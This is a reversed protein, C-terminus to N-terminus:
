AKGHTAIAEDIRAFETEDGPLIERMTAKHQAINAAAQDRYYGAPAPLNRRKLIARYSEDGIVHLKEHGISRSVLLTLGQFIPRCLFDFAVSLSAFDTQYYGGDKLVAILQGDSAAGKPRYDFRFSVVRRWNRLLWGLNKVARPECGPSVIFTKM